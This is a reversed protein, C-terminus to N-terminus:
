ITPEYASFKELEKEQINSAKFGEMEQFLQSSDLEQLSKFEEQTFTIGRGMRTHDASWARIDIKPAAGNWSVLNIERTWGSKSPFGLDGLHGKIEHTIEQEQASFNRYTERTQPM